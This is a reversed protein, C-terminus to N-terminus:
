ARGAQSAAVTISIAWSDREIAVWLQDETIDERLFGLEFLKVMAVPIGAAGNLQSVEDLVSDVVFDVREASTERVLYPLEQSGKLTSRYEDTFERMLLAKGTAGHKWLWNALKSIQYYATLGELKHEVSGCFGNGAERNALCDANLRGEIDEVVHTASESGCDWSLSTGLCQATITFNRSM